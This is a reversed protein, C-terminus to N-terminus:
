YTYLLTIYCDIFDADSGAAVVLNTGTIHIGVNQNLISTIRPIAYWVATESILISHNLDVFCIKPNRIGHSIVKSTSNIAGM